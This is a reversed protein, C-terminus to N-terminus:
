HACHASHAGLSVTICHNATHMHAQVTARTYTRVCSRICAYACQAYAHTRIIITTYLNKQSYIADWFLCIYRFYLSIDLNISKQSRTYTICMKQSSIITKCTNKALCIYALLRSAHISPTDNSITVFSFLITIIKQGLFM